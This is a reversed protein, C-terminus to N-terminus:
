LKELSPEYQITPGLVAAFCDATGSRKYALEGTRKLKFRATRVEITILRGDARVAILDFPASPALARFVSYGKFFLDAAVILEGAAGKANNTIDM